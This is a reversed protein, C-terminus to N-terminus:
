GVQAQAWMVAGALNNSASFMESAMQVNGNKEADVAMKYTLIASKRAVSVGNNTILNAAPHQNTKSM